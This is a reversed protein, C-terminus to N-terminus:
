VLGYEVYTLRRIQFFAFSSRSRWGSLKAAHLCPKNYHPSNIHLFKDFISYNLTNTFLAKRVNGGVVTLRLLSHLKKAQDNRFSNSNLIM